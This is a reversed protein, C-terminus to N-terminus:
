YNFNTLDDKTGYIGDWGASILLFTSPNYPKFFDNVGDGDTDQERQTVIEYFYQMSTKSTDQPDKYHLNAGNPQAAPDRLWPLKLIEVNDDFNYIWNRYEAPVAPNVPQGTSDTRFRASPDARFYLIPMGVKLTDGSALTIKNQTFVDTFVPARQTGTTAGASTYILSTGTNAGWLESITYFGTRDAKREFYPPKRDKLTNNPGFSTYLNAGPHPAPQAADLDPHWKTKPHFGQDDRGFLAEALRQGGNVYTGNYFINKSDPYNKFDKSFLEVSIEAAHFVAKQQLNKSVVKVKRQAVTLISVLAAIIAVVTLLEILTFARNKIQRYM